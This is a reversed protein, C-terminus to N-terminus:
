WVQTCAGPRLLRRQSHVTVREPLTYPTYSQSTWYRCSMLHSSTTASAWRHICCGAFATVSRTYRYLYDGGTEARVACDFEMSHGETYGSGTTIGKLLTIFMYVELCHKWFSM